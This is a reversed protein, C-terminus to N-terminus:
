LLAQIVLIIVFVCMVCMGVYNQKSISLIHNDYDIKDVIRLGKKKMSHRESQDSTKFFVSFLPLRFWKSEEVKKVPM